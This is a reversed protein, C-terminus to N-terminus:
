QSGQKSELDSDVNVCINKNGEQTAVSNAPDFLM